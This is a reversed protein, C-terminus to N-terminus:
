NVAELLLEKEEGSFAQALDLLVILRNEYKGIGKLGCGTSVQQVLPPPPAILEENLRVVESVEDAIVGVAQNGLTIIIIRSNEGFETPLGYFRKQLDVIPVILGRLNVIGEVVQSSQPIRTIQRVQIIERVADIDLGFEENNITFIVYQQEAM